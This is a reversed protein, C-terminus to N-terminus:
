DKEPDDLDLPEHAQHVTVGALSRAADRAYGIEEYGHGDCDHNNLLHDAADALKVLVDRLPWPGDSEPGEVLVADDVARSVLVATMLRSSVEVFKSFQFRPTQGAYRKAVYGRAPRRVARFEGLADKLVLKLESEPIGQPLDLILKV